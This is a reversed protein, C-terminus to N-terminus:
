RRRRKPPRCGNHPYYTDDVISLVVIGSNQLARLASERGVGPGRVIVNVTQLGYEKAKEIADTATVQAAYPTSKKSGKFGTKGSSSWTIVNGSLDSVTVNTNNFTCYIHMIGNVINRSRKKKVALKNNNSKVM